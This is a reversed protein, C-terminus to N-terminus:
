KNVNMQLSKALLMLAKAEQHSDCGFKDGLPCQADKADCRIRIM